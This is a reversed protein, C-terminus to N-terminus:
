CCTNSSSNASPCPLYFNCRKFIVKYKKLVIVSVLCDCNAYVLALNPVFNNSTTNLSSDYLAQLLYANGEFFALIFHLMKIGNVSTEVLGKKLGLVRHNFRKLNRFLAFINSEKRKCRPEIKIWNSLKPSAHLFICFRKM